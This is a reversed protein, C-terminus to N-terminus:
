GIVDRWLRPSSCDCAPVRRLALGHPSSSAVLAGDLDFAALWEGTGSALPSSSGGPQTGASLLALLQPVTPLSIGRRVAGAFSSDVSPVRPQTQAFVLRPAGGGLRGIEVDPDVQCYAWSLLIEFAAADHLFAQADPGPFVEEFTAVFRRALALVEEGSDPHAFAEQPNTVIESARDVRGGRALFHVLSFEWGMLLEILRADPLTEGSSLWAAGAPLRTPLREPVALVGVADIPGLELAARLRPLASERYRVRGPDVRFGWEGDAWGALARAIGEELPLLNRLRVGDRTRERDLWTQLRELSLEGAETREASLRQPLAARVHNRLSRTYASRRTGTLMQRARALETVEPGGRLPFGPARLARLRDRLARTVEEAAAMEDVGLLSFYDAPSEPGHQPSDAPLIALPSSLRRRM